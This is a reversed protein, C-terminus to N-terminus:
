YPGEHRSSVVSGVSVRPLAATLLRQSGGGGWGKSFDQSRGQKIHRGYFGTIYIRKSLSTLVLWFSLPPGLTPLHGVRSQAFNALTGGGLSVLSAFAGCEGLLPCPHM